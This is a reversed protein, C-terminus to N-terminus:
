QGDAATETDPTDKEGKRLEAEMALLERDSDILAQIVRADERGSDLLSELDINKEIIPKLKAENTEIRLKVARVMASERAM